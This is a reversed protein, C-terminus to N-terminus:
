AADLEALEVLSPSALEPDGATIGGDVLLVQGTIYDAEESLLFAVARAVDLPSGLRGMPTRKLVANLFRPVQFTDKTMGTAIYGPSIANVRIGYPAMELAVARTLMTVGGKSTVYASVHPAAFHGMISAINVIAGQKEAKRLQRLFLQSMVMTGTLNTDLVKHWKAMELDVFSSRGAIGAGNVLGTAIVGRASLTEFLAGCDELKTVDAVQAEASGGEAVLTAALQSAETRDVDVVVVHAGRGALLRAAGAGIGSAGGTVVIVKGEFQTM